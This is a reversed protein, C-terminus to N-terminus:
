RVFGMDKVNPFFPFPIELDGVWVADWSHPWYIFIAKGILLDRRVYFEPNGWLRSDKSFPSNDGLMLFQDKDLHFDVTQLQNKQFAAPWRSPDAYFATVSQETLSGFTRIPDLFDTILGYHRGKTQSDAIYYLDRLLRLHSLEVQAGEDGIRVPTLDAETPITNKLPAFTTPRDFEVLKGDVWLRLQDDANAFRIDYSGPSRVATTAQPAFEELGPISLRVKGSALEFHCNFKRGGEVLEVVVQGNEGKVTLTCQLVLDGVWHLGRGSPNSSFTSRKVGTNYVCADTILQPKPTYGKPLSGKRLWQWDQVTPVLHRYSLWSMKDGDGTYTFTKFDDSAKWGDGQWRAPWGKKTLSKDLTHDADFVPRMMTLLKEPGKRAIKWDTEGDPKVFLDGRDIQISEEPLGVLRKIYNIKADAPFHFVSVDWRKPDDFVYSFKNVLIRDGSYAKKDSTSIPHGCNTCTAGVIHRRSDIQGTIQDIEESASVLVRAGCEPCEFDLNRGMLTTAMSGTPIVFAEAEFTRFLFALILAIAVSEITERFSTFTFLSKHPKRKPESKAPIPKPTSTQPSKKASKSPRNKRNRAM